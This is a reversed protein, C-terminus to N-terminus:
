NVIIVEGDRLVRYAIKLKELEAKVRNGAQTWEKAQWHPIIAHNVLGMGDWIVREALKVQDMHNAGRLTSGAVMAGASFGGYVIKDESLLEKIAIAFGSKHILDNLIFSNGGRMWVLKKDALFQSITRPSAYERLDLEKAEYGLEGLLQAEYDYREQREVLTHYDAANVCLAVRGGKGVLEVLKQPNDGFDDSSLYLRM